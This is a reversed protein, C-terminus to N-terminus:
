APVAKRAEARAALEAQQRAAAKAQEAYDEQHADYEATRGPKARERLLRPITDLRMDNLTADDFQDLIAVVDKRSM